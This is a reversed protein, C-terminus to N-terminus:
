IVDTITSRSGSKGCKLLSIRDFLIARTVVGIGNKRPTIRVNGYNGITTNCGIDICLARHAMYDTSVEFGRAATVVIDSTRMLNFIDDNRTHSHCVAVTANLELLEKAIDKGIGRGIITAVKGDCGGNEQIVRIAASVVARQYHDSVAGDIDLPSAIQRVPKGLCLIGDVDRPMGALDGGVITVNVGLEAADKLIGRLFIENDKADDTKCVVLEATEGGLRKRVQGKISEAIGLCDIYEVM